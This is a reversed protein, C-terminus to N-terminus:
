PRRAPAAAGQAPELNLVVIQDVDGAARAPLTLTVGSPTEHFPVAAGGALLSAARLRRPLAPLALVPDRWDLVHVYVRDGRQTTVGWPRPAIPGGRTGYVSAGNRELWAGV